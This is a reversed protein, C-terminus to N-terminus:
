PVASVYRTPRFRRDFAEQLPVANSPAQGFSSPHNPHRSLDPPSPLSQMNPPLAIESGTARRQYGDHQQLLLNGSSWGLFLLIIISHAFILSPDLFASPSLEAMCYNLIVDAIQCRSSYSLLDALLKSYLILPQGQYM